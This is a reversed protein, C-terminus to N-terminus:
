SVGPDSGVSSCGSATSGNTCPGTLNGGGENCVAYVNNQSLKKLEPPEWYLENKHIEQKGDSSM